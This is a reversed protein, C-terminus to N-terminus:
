GTEYKLRKGEATCRGDSGKFYFEVERSVSDAFDPMQTHISARDDTEDLLMDLVYHFHLINISIFIVGELDGLRISVDKFFYGKLRVLTLLIKTQKFSNCEATQEEINSLIESGFRISASFNM